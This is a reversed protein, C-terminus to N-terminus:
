RKWRVITGQGGGKRVATRRKTHNCPTWVTTLKSIGRDASEYMWRTPLVARAPHPPLDTVRM